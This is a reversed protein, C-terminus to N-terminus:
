EVTGGSQEVSSNVTTVNSNHQHIQNPESIPELLETYLEEQTFMNFIDNNYCNEDQHVETLGDATAMFDFEEPTLQIGAKKKQAIQQQTQLYSVDGKRQKVTCNRAYHDVGQCNYCRTQNENNGNGNGETQTAAVNGNGNQNRVNQVTNYGNQIRTIQRSNLRFQIGVNDEVMLMHRDQDM